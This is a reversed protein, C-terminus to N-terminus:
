SPPILQERPAELTIAVSTAGGSLATELVSSLAALVEGRGGSLGITEPGADTALGTDAAAAKAEALGDGLTLEATLEPPPVPM